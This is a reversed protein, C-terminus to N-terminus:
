DLMIYTPDLSYFTKGEAHFLKVATVIEKFIHFAVQLPIMRRRDHYKFINDFKVNEFLQYSM